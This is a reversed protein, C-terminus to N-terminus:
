GVLPGFTITQNVKIINFSRIVDTAPNYNLDGGQSATITCSGASTIHVTNGTVTCQGAAAFSVTLNSSATANVNFNPDSVTKDALAGFTITQNAKAVAFSQNVNPAPNFTGDGAQSTTVTCSGAGTIHVTSGAVTCSGSVGFSVVLGSSASASLAFDPDGFTKSVLAGFTLTQNMRDINFLSFASNSPNYNSDGGQYAGIACSGASTIHVSNGTVTCQGYVAAFSVTLNSSATASVNFDPDGVTKNPIPGFTVTQDAKEVAFSRAVNPAPNFSADGTQSATITCSGAGNIHVTNGTVTCKGTAAFGVSLGSSSTASVLFDADGFTKPLLTGFSITQDTKPVIGTEYAGVDVHAGQLRAVGRQDTTIIPTAGGCGTLVCDDGADIATSGALLAHTQTPGGNNALPGLKLQAATVGDQDGTAGLDRTIPSAPNIPGFINHGKSHWNGGTLDPFAPLNVSTNLAIIDNRLPGGGCIGGMNLASNNTITSSTITALQGGSDRLGGCSSVASNGSLTSNTINLTGGNFIGGGEGAATNGSLTSNTVNVTGSNLIGGGNSASNNKITSDTVNTTGANNNTIGGGSGSNNSVISNTVNTTGVGNFIGGNYFGSNNSVTSNTVNMTGPGNFIGGGFGQPVHNDTVVCNTVYVTATGSDKNIGGGHAQNANIFGNTMTMGFFTVINPSAATVNFIRYDGGTGRRVTLLNAGPGNITIATSIDPLAGTLNITCVGGTCGTDSVPIAFNITNAGGLANASNIAERLTCGGVAATCLGDDTDATSNVVLTGTPANNVTASVASALGNQLELSGDPGPVSSASAQEWVFPGFLVLILITLSIRTIQVVNLRLDKM